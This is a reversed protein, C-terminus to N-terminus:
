SKIIKILCGIVWVRGIANGQTCRTYRSHENINTPPPFSFPFFFTRVIDDLQLCVADNDRGFRLVLVKEAVSKIAQDVEKKCSLKPLLFSMRVSRLRWWGGRRVIVALFFFPHCFSIVSGARGRRSGLRSLYLRPAGVTTTPRHFGSRRNLARPVGLDGVPGPCSLAASQSRGACASLPTGAKGVHLLHRRPESRRATVTLRARRRRESSCDPPSRAPGCHPCTRAAPPQALLFGGQGPLEPDGSRKGRAM